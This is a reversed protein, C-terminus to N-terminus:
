ESSSIGLAEYCSSAWGDTRASRHLPVAQLVRAANGSPPSEVSANPPLEGERRVCTKAHTQVRFRDLMSGYQPAIHGREVATTRRIGENHTAGIIKADAIVGTTQHARTQSLTKHNTAVRSVPCPMDPLM